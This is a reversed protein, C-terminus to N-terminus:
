QPLNCQKTCVPLYRGEKEILITMDIERREAFSLLADHFLHM